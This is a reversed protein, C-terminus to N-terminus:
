AGENKLIREDQERKTSIQKPMNPSVTERLASPNHVKKRWKDTEVQRAAEAGLYILKQRNIRFFEDETVQKIAAVKDPSNDWYPDRQIIANAFSNLHNHEEPTLKYNFSHNGEDNLKINVEKFESVVTKIVPQWTEIRQTNTTQFAIRQKEADPVSMQVKYQSIFKKSEAADIKLDTKADEVEEGADTDNHKSVFYQRELKRDIESSNLNPFKLKMEIKKADLDSMKDVDYSNIQQFIKRDGGQKVFEIEKKSYEDISNIYDEKDKLKQEYDTLKSKTTDYDTIKPLASKFEDASKFMGGTLTSLYESENFAPASSNPENTNVLPTEINPQAAPNAPENDLVAQGNASPQQVEITSTANAKANAASAQALEESETM